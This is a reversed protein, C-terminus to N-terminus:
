NKTKVREKMARSPANIIGSNSHSSAKRGGATNKGVGSAAFPGVPRYATYNNFQESLSMLMYGNEDIKCYLDETTGDSYWIYLRQGQLNWMLSINVLEGKDRYFYRGTNDAKFEFGVAIVEPIDYRGEEDVFYESYWNGTIASVHDGGLIIDIVANMDAINIEGDANVDAATNSGDTLIEDIVANVDAINVEGDGNVDGRVQDEVIRGFYPYWREDAQYAYTMGYPVHLTRDSYDADSVFAEEGVFVSWPDTIYSYVDTLASCYEFASRGIDTVSNPITLSKLSTCYGFADEDILTVSNGITVNTLGSCYAFAQIDIRTVSNPIAVSTLSSCGWFAGNGIVTVSNPIITNQCGAILVNNATSIIANCNNRSDYKPNGSDVTIRLLGSCGSFAFTAINTVTKPITVRLPDTCNMFASRGIATVAYTVGNYTVSEPITVDGFYHGTHVNDYGKFTVTAETGNINYYIGNVEFDYATATAPLLALLLLVLSHLTTKM